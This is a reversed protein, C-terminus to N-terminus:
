EWRARVSSVTRGAFAGGLLLVPPRGLDLAGRQCSPWARRPCSRDPGRYPSVQVPQVPFFYRTNSFPSFFRRRSWRRDARRSLRPLCHRRLPLAVVGWPEMGSRRAPSSRCWLRLWSPPSLSRIRSAETVWCTVTTSESGSAWSTSTPSRPVFPALSRLDARSRSAPSVRGRGGSRVLCADLDHASGEELGFGYATRGSRSASERSADALTARRWARLAVPMTCAGRPVGPTARCFAATTTATSTTASTAPTAISGRPRWLADKPRAAPRQWNPFVGWRAPVCWWSM